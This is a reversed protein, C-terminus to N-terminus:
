KSRSSAPRCKEITQATLRIVAKIRDEPTAFGEGENFQGRYEIVFRDPAACAALRHPRRGTVKYHILMSDLKITEPKPRLWFHVDSIDWERELPIEIRGPKGYDFVWVKDGDDSGAAEGPRPYKASAFTRILPDEPQRRSWVKTKSISGIRAPLLREMTEPDFLSDSLRDLETREFITGDRCSQALGDLDLSEIIVRLEQATLTSSSIEVIVQPHVRARMVHDEGWNAHGRGEVAQFRKVQTAVVQDLEGDLDNLKLPDLM